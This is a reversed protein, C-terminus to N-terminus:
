SKEPRPSGSNDLTVGTAREHHIWAQVARRSFLVRGGVRRSPIEGRAAGDYVTKRNIGLMGAVDDATIIDPDPDATTRRM